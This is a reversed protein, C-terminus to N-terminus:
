VKVKVQMINNMGNIIEPAFKDITPAVIAWNKEHALELWIGYDVGHSCTIRITNSDPQSVRSTLTQRAMGTRDTWPANSQMYGQMQQSKTVAYMLMAAGMKAGLKALGKEIPSMDMKFQTGAM